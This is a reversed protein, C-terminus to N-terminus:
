FFSSYFNSFYIFFILNNITWLICNMVDDENKPGFDSASFKEELWM